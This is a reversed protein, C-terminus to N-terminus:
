LDPSHPPWFQPYFRSIVGDNTFTAPLFKQVNTMLHPLASIHLIKQIINKEKIYTYHVSTRPIGTSQSISGVSSVGWENIAGIERDAEKVADTREDRRGSKPRDAVSETEEFKQVLNLLSRNTCPAKRLNNETNYKRITATACNNTSYYCRM